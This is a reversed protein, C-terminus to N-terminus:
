RKKSSEYDAKARRLAEAVDATARYEMTGGEGSGWADFFWSKGQQLPGMWLRSFGGLHGRFKEDSLDLARQLEGASVLEGPRAALTDLFRRMVDSTQRYARSIVSDDTGEIPQPARSADAKRALLEYVEDVRDVPVPVSVFERGM